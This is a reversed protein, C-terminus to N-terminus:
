AADEFEMLIPEATCRCNIPEGPHGGEPPKDWRFRKGDKSIHSSRVREDGVTRWIYEEVGLDMQRRQNFQGNLKALETRAILAARNETVQFREQLNGSLDEWRMGTSFAEQIAASVDTLMDDAVSSILPVNENVFTEIMYRNSPTFKNVDIGIAKSLVDAQREDTEFALHTLANATDKIGSQLYMRIAELINNIEDDSADNRWSRPWTGLRRTMIPELQELIWNFAPQILARLARFYRLEFRKPSATDPNIKAIRAKRGFRDKLSYLVM